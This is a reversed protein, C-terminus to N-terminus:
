ESRAAILWEAFERFAGHGGRNLCIFQAITKIIEMADAPCAAIGARNM